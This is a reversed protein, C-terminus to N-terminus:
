LYAEKGVGSDFHCFEIIYVEPYGALIKMLDSKTLIKGQGQRFM